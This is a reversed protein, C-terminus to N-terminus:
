GPWRWPSTSTPPSRAASSPASVPRSCSSRPAPSAGPGTSRITPIAVDDSPRSSSAHSIMDLKAGASAVVHFPDVVTVVDPAVEAATKYGAFGDMAIVEVARAFETPQAALWGSLAARISRCWTLCGYRVTKDAVPILDIILTVFGEVGGRRPTWRHEDVGIVWVEALRDPRLTLLRLCQNGRHHPRRTDSGTDDGAM